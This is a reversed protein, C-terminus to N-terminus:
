RLASWLGAFDDTWAPTSPAPPIEVRPAAAAQIAPSDLSTPDRTLLVWESPFAWWDDDPPRNFIAAATLGFKHAQALVVSRVDVWRNSVNVILIGNSKLRDLYIAFAESTLLHIPVADSSFADIM